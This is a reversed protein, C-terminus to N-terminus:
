GRGEGADPGCDPSNDFPFEPFLGSDRREPEFPSAASTRPAAREALTLTAALLAAARVRAGIRDWREVTAPVRHFTPTTSGAAELM